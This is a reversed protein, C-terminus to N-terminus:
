ELRWRGVKNYVGQIMHEEFKKSNRYRYILIENKNKNMNKQSSQFESMKEYFQWGRLSRRRLFICEYIQESIRNKCKINDRSYNRMIDMFMIICKFHEMIYWINNLWQEKILGKHPKWNQSVRIFMGTCVNKDVLMSREKQSHRPLIVSEFSM